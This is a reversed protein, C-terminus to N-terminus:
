SLEMGDVVERRVVERELRWGSLGVQLRLLVLERTSGGAQGDHTFLREALALHDTRPGAAWAEVEADLDIPQEELHAEPDLTRSRVRALLHRLDEPTRAVEPLTLDASGLGVHGALRELVALVQAAREPQLAGLRQLQVLLLPGLDQTALDSWRRPGAAVPLPVARLASLVQAEPPPLYHTQGAAVLFVARRQAYQFQRLGAARLGLSPFLGPPGLTGLACVELPPAGDFRQSLLQREEPTLADLPAQAM